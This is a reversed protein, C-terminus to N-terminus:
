RAQELLTVISTDHRAIAAELPSSKRIPHVVNPNAGAALLLRVARAQGNEAAMWIPPVGSPGAGDPSVGRELLVTMNGAMGAEAAKALPTLGEADPKSPTIGLDLVARVTAPDATVCAMALYEAAASDPEFPPRQAGALDKILNARRGFIASLLIKGGEDSDQLRTVSAGHELLLKVVSRMTEEEASFNSVAAMLPKSEFMPDGEPAAGAELLARCAEVNGQRAYLGLPTAESGSDVENPDIGAKLLLRVMEVPQNASAARLLANRQKHDKASVKAGAALLQQVIAANGHRAALLLPTVGKCAANPDAGAALLTKVLKERVVDTKEIRTPLIAPILPPLGVKTKALGAGRTELAWEVGESSGALLMSEFIAPWNANMTVEEAPLTAIWKRFFPFNGGTAASVALQFRELPHAPLLARGELAKVAAPSGSSAALILPSAEGVMRNPDAGKKLLMQILDANGTECASLLPTITRDKPPEVPAGAELLAIAVERSGWHCALELPPSRGPLNAKLDVGAAALAKAAIADNMMIASSLAEALQQPSPAPRHHVALSREPTTSAAQIWLTKGPGDFLVQARRLLGYGFKVDAGPIGRVVALAPLTAKMGGCEIDLWRGVNPREWMLLDVPMGDDDDAMARNSMGHIARKPGQWIREQHLKVFDRRIAVEYPGDAILLALAKCGNGLTVEVHPYGHWETVPVPVAGEPPAAQRQWVLQHGPEDLLFPLTRLLDWGIAGAVQVASKSSANPDPQGAHHIGEEKLRMPFFRLDSVEARGCRLRDVRFYNTSGVIGAEVGAAQLNKTIAGFEPIEPLKLEAAVKPDMFSEREATGLQFWRTDAGNISVPVLVRSGDWRLPVPDSAVDPPLGFCPELPFQSLDAAAAHFDVSGLIVLLRVIWRTFNLTLTKM